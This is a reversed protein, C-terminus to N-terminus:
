TSVAERASNVSDLNGQLEVLQSELQQCVIQKNSLLQELQDLKDIERQLASENDSKLQDMASSLGSKQKLLKQM